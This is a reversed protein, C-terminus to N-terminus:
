ARAAILREQKRGRPRSGDKIAAVGTGLALLLAEEPQCDLARALRRVRRGISRDNLLSTLSLTKM